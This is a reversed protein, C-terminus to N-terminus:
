ELYYLSVSQPTCAVVGGEGRLTVTGSRSFIHYFQLLALIQKNGSNNTVILITLPSIFVCTVPKFAHESSLSVNLLFVKYTNCITTGSIYVTIYYYHFCM